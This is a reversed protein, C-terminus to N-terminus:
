GVLSRHDFLQLCLANVSDANEAVTHWHLFHAHGAQRLNEVAEKTTMFEMSKVEAIIIGCVTTNTLVNIGNDTYYNM